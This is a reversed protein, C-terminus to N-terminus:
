GQAWGQRRARQMMKLHFRGHASHVCCTRFCFALGCDFVSFEGIAADAPCSGCFLARVQITLDSEEIDVHKFTYMTTRRDIALQLLALAVSLGCCWAM